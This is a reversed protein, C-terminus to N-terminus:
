AIGKAERHAKLFRSVSGADCGLERAIANISYLEKYLEIILEKERESLRTGPRRKYPTKGLGNIAKMIASGLFEELRRMDVYGGTKRISPLVEQTVWRKFSRAQEKRSKFILNYLGSETV